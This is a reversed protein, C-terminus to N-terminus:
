NNGLISLIDQQKGLLCIVDLHDEREFYFLALPFGSIRWSCLSPIDLLEGIRPSGLGPNRELLQLAEDIVRALKAAVPKEAHDRYYRVETRIDARAQPRPIAPKM